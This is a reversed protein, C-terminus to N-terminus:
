SVVISENYWVFLTNKYFFQVTQKECVCFSKKTIRM